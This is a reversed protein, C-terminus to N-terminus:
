YYKFRISIFGAFGTTTELKNSNKLRNFCPLWLFPENEYNHM